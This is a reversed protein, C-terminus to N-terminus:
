PIFGASYLLFSLQAGDLPSVWRPETEFTVHVAKGPEVWGAPVPKEIRYKEARPCSLTALPNGEIRIRITVPGTDKFTAEPIAIEAAFKLGRNDQVRFRLEPHLFAWRFAGREASIDRVIYDDALADEMTVFSAFSGPEPGAASPRQPPPAFWGPRCGCAAALLLTILAVPVPRHVSFRTYRAAAWGHALSQDFEVAVPGPLGHHFTLKPCAEWFCRILWKNEAQIQFFRRPIM